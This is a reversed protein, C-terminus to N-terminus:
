GHPVAGGVIMELIIQVQGNDTQADLIWRERDLRFTQVSQSGAKVWVAGRLHGISDEWLRENTKPGMQLEPIAEGLQAVSTLSWFTREILRKVPISVRAAM